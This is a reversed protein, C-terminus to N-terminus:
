GSSAATVCATQHPREDDLQILLRGRSRGDFLMNLAQPAHELGEHITQPLKLRGAGAWELLAASAQTFRIRYDMANFAHLSVNRAGLEAAHSPQAMIPLADSLYQSSAGCLVVRADSSLYRAVTDLVAGGVNDFFLNVGDPCLVALREGINEHKYDIAADFGLEDILWRCKEPGGAIGITRAGTIRAIQGALTGVAGAAGSVVVTDGPQVKGVEFMGFYAAMATHGFVNLAADLAVDDALVQAQASNSLVQFDSWDFFGVVRAGAAFATNRSQTVLGAGFGRIPMGLAVPPVLGIDRSLIVRTVPDMSLLMTRVLAEGEGLTPTAQSILETDADALLGVPRRCLVWKRNTM